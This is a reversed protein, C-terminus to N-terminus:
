ERLIFLQRNTMIFLEIIIVLVTLWSFSKLITRRELLRREPKEERQIHKLEKKIMGILGGIVVILLCAIIIWLIPLLASNRSVMGVGTLLLVILSYHGARTFTM